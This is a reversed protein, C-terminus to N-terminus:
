YEVKWLFLGQPPATYPKLNGASNELLARFDEPTGKGRSIEIMTGVLMRVMSYLFRNGVIMYNLMNENKIWKSEYVHCTKSEAESSTRSLISFDHEGLVYEACLDLLRENITIDPQWTYRRTIVSPSQLIQYVYTRKKAGFRAHFSPDTEQCRHIYIDNPTKANLAKCITEANLTTDLDFHAIQGLAHVGSDTRGSGILTVPQGKNLESLSDELTQQVTRDRIQRQWGCFDTGDYEITIKYRRVAM